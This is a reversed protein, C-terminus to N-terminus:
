PNYAWEHISNGDSFIESANVTKTLITYKNNLNAKGHEKAYSLNITVWDGPNISLKQNSTQQNLQRLQSQLNTLIQNQQEDYPFQEIPYNMELQHIIPNNMPFFLFKNHYTIIKSIEKIKQNIEYNINPVARYIKVKYNPKNKANQIISISQQDIPHNHGYHGYFRAGQNSYIDDPFINTLDHLPAGSEKSPATHNGRYDEEQTEQTEQTEQALKYWNTLNHNM